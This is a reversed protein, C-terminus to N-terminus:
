GVWTDTGRETKGKSSLFSTKSAGLFETVAEPCCATMRFGLEMRDRLLLCSVLRFIGIEGLFLWSRSGTDEIGFGLPLITHFM